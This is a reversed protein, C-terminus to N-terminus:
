IWGDSGEVAGAAVYDTGAKDKFLHPSAKTPNKPNIGSSRYGIDYQDGAKADEPVEVMILVINTVTDDDKDAAWAMWTIYEGEYTNSAYTVSIDVMEGGTSLAKKPNDIVEYQCRSDVTFGLEMANLGPHDENMRVYIPVKYDMGALEELTVEKQDITIEFGDAASAELSVFPLTACSVVSMAAVAALAKKFSFNKM